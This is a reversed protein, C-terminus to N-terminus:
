KFKKSFLFEFFFFLPCASSPRSAEKEAWGRLAARKGRGERGHAVGVKTWGVGAVHRGYTPTTSAGRGVPRLRTPVGGRVGLSWKTAGSREGRRGGSALATATATRGCRWRRLAGGSVAPWALAGIESGLEGSCEDEGRYAEAGARGFHSVAARRSDSTPTQGVEDSHEAANFRV